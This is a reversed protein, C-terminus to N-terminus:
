DPCLALEKVGLYNGRTAAQHDFEEGGKAELLQQSTEIGPTRGEEFHSRLQGRERQAGTGLRNTRKELIDEQFM